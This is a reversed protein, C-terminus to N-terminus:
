PPCVQGELTVLVCLRRCVSWKTSAFRENECFPRNVQGDPGKKEAEFGAIGCPVTANESGGGAGQLDVEGRLRPTLNLRGPLAVLRDVQRLAEVQSGDPPM